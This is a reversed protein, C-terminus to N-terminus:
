YYIAALALEIPFGRKQMYRATNWRGCRKMRMAMEDILGWVDHRLAPAIERSLEAKIKYSVCAVIMQATNLPM